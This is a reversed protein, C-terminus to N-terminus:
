EEKPEKLMKSPVMDQLLGHDRVLSTASPCFPREQRFATNTTNSMLNQFYPQQYHLMQPMNVFHSSSFGGGGGGASGYTTTEPMIGFSGRPTIPCPHTHTGEYTTVVISPDDSCREVRKKVGCATSTCRYYSRPFPSNKVAKQGYKRWRYGDDLHDIESKTMFAFRPERERKQNKKKPKSEKKTTKEQNEEEEDQDENENKKQDDNSSSSISSSNPTAPTNVVESYEPVPSPLPQSTPQQSELPVLQATINQFLDDFTSYAPCNFDQVGLMDVFGLCSKQNDAAEECSVDFLSSPMSFSLSSEPNIMIQNSFVAKDISNIEPKKLKEDM